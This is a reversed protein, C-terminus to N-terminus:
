LRDAADGRVTGGLLAANLVDLAIFFHDANQELLLAIM